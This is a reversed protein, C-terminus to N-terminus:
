KVKNEDAVKNKNDKKKPLIFQILDSIDRIIISFFAKIVSKSKIENKADYYISIICLITLVLIFIGTLILQFM